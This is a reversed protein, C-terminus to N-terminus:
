IEYLIDESSRCENENEKNKKLKYNDNLTGSQSFFFCILFFYEKAFIKKVIIKEIAGKM